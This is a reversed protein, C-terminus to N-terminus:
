WKTADHSRKRVHIEGEPEDKHRVPLAHHELDWTAEGGKMILLVVHIENLTDRTEADPQVYSKRLRMYHNRLVRIVRPFETAFSLPYPSPM